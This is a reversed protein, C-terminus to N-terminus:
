RSTINIIRQNIYHFFCVAGKAPKRLIMCIQAIYKIKGGQFINTSSAVFNAPSLFIIHIISKMKNSSKKECFIILYIEQVYNVLPQSKIQGIIQMIVYVCFISNYCKLLISSAFSCLYPIVQLYSWRKSLTSSRQVIKRLFISSHM